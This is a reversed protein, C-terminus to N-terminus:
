LQVPCGGQKLSLTAAELIRVIRLGARGDSIPTQQNKICDVFHQTEVSLAEAGSVKPAWMDGTRYGVFMEYPGDPGSPGDGLTIGRDYVKVKESPELDDYVIMQRDGGLLTRRVKVPALWNVNIHAILSDAFFCTLYAINVPQGPVHAAGTAAVANPSEGIVYDMISLDHVALDWLVDVDRQFLGLNVRTSDFYNLRGVQGSEVLERIKRVAGHYVFTHDVMLVLGRREAEDVLLSAQASNLALPKEVLVHKGAELAQMALRFHSSVPTAIAVADIEPDLLMDEYCPTTKIAPYHAQVDALRNASLDSVAVIRAGPTLSFNRVLNPGWYGYGAVGVGVARQQGSSADFPRALSSTTLHSTSGIPPVVNYM